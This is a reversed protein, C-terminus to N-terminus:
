GISQCVFLGVYCCVPFFYLSIFSCISLCICLFTRQSTHPLVPAPQSAVLHTPLCSSLCASLCVPLCGGFPHAPMCASLYASLLSYLASLFISLFVSLCVSLSVPLITNQVWLKMILSGTNIKSYSSL